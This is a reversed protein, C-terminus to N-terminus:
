LILMLKLRGSWGAVLHKKEFEISYLENEAPIEAHEPLLPLPQVVFDIGRNNTNSNLVDDDGIIADLERMENGSLRRLTEM